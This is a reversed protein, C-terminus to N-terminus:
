SGGSVLLLLSSWFIRKKFTNLIAKFLSEDYIEREAHGSQGPEQDNSAKPVVVASRLYM